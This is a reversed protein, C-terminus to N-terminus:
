CWIIDFADEVSNVSNIYDAIGDVLVCHIGGHKLYGAEILARTADKLQHVGM